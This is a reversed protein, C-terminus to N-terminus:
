NANGFEGHLERSKRKYEAYAEEATRHLSYHRVNNIRIDMRWCNSGKSWSVGKYGSKNLSRKSSNLCNTNRSSERLNDWKNNRKNTDRHDVEEPIYGLMIAFAAQHAYILRGNLSLRTYEHGKDSGALKGAYKKNYCSDGLREKFTFFGMLPFYNYKQKILEVISEKTM